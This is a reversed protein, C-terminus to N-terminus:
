VQSSLTPLRGVVGEFLSCHSIIAGRECRIGGSVAISACACLVYIWTFSLQGPMVAVAVAVSPNLSTAPDGLIVRVSSGRPPLCVCVKVKTGWNSPEKLMERADPTYLMVSDLSVLYTWDVLSPVMVIRLLSSYSRWVLVCQSSHVMKKPPESEVTRIGRMMQPLRTM